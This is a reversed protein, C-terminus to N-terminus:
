CRRTPAIDVKVLSKGSGEDVTERGCWGAGAGAGACIGADRTSSGVAMAAAISDVIDACLM